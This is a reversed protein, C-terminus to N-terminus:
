EAVAVFLKHGLAKHSMSVPFGSHYSLRVSSGCFGFRAMVCHHSELSRCHIFAQNLNPSVKKANFRM